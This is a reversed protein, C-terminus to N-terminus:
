HNAPRARAQAAAYRTMTAFEGRDEPDIVAAYDQVQVMLTFKTRDSRNPVSAHLCLPNLLVGDGAPLDVSIPAVDAYVQPDVVPKSKDEVNHDVVGHKHTGPYIIMTGLQLNAARLPIWLRWARRCQMSGVDQHVPLSRTTDNPIDARIDPWVLPVDIKAWHLIRM